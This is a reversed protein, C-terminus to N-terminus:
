IIQTPRIQNKACHLRIMLILTETKRYGRANRKMTQVKSNFGELPANTIVSDFYQIIGQHHKDLTKALTTMTKKKLSRAMDAWFSLFASAEQPDTQQWLIKFNNKMEYVTALERNELLLQELESKEAPNLQEYDKFFIWKNFRRGAKRAASKRIADFAKQVLQSVHFKDYTVKAQPLYKEIGAGFAPSMDVSVDTINKPDLGQNQAELVFEGVVEADKGEVVHLLDSSDLDIFCSVYDHGKKKSTEDFGIRKVESLDREEMAGPDHEWVIHWLRQPYIGLQRAVKSVDGHLKVFELALSEFLLSFGSGPRAWPVELTRVGGGKYKYKPVRCHLYCAHEFLNLHRWTRETYDHITASEPRYDSSIGIRIHVGATEPASDYRVETVSYPSTLGLLQEFFQTTLM